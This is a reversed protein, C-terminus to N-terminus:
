LCCSSSISTKKTKTNKYYKCFNVVMARYIKMARLVYNHGPFLGMRGSPCGFYPPKEVFSMGSTGVIRERDVALWSVFTGDAMKRQRMYEDTWKGYPCGKDEQM